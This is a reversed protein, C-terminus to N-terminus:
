KKFIICFKPNKLTIMLCNWSCSCDPHHIGYRATKWFPVGNIPPLDSFCKWSITKDKYTVSEIVKECIKKNYNCDGLGIIDSYKIPSFDIITDILTRPIELKDLELLDKSKLKFLIMGDKIISFDNETLPVFYYSSEGTFSLVTPKVTNMM